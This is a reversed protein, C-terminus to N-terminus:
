KDDEVRRIIRATLLVITKTASNKEQSPLAKKEIAITEGDRLNVVLKPLPQRELVIAGDRESGGQLEVRQEGDTEITITDDNNITPTFLWSQNDVAQLSSLNALKEFRKQENFLDNGGKLNKIDWTAPLGSGAKLFTPTRNFATIRPATLVVAKKRELLSALRADFGGKVRSMLAQDTTTTANFGLNEVENAAVKIFRTELEVQQIPRDLSRITQALQNAGDFTAFVLLANQPDVAVIRAVGEPLKEQKNALPSPPVSPFQPRDQNQPDLWWAMVSAKVNRIPVTFTKQQQQAPALTPTEPVTATTNQALSISALTGVLAFVLPIKM